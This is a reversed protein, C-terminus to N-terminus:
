IVKPKPKRFYTYCKFITGALMAGVLSFVPSPEPVSVPNSEPAVAVDLDLDLRVFTSPNFFLGQGNVFLESGDFTVRNPTLGVLTTQPNISVGKIQLAIPASFTFVDTNKFGSAFRGFGANSYDFELYDAGADISVNVFSKAFGPPVGVSPDFLSEVNPFEVTSESVIASAPFSSVFLQSTSSLQAEARYSLTSGILTVALASGGSFAIMSAASVFLSVGRITM